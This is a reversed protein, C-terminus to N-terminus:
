AMEAHIVRSGERGTPVTQRGETCCKALVEFMIVFALTDVKLHMMRNKEQAGSYGNGGVLDGFM